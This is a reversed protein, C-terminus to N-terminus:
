LNGGDHGGFASDWGGAAPLGLESEHFDSSSTGHFAYRFFEARADEYSLSTPSGALITVFDERSLFMAYAYVILTADLKLKHVAVDIQAPSFSKRTGYDHALRRPLERAYRRIGRRKRLAAFIKMEVQARSRYM